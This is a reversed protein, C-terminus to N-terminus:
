PRIAVAVGTTASAQALRAAQDPTAALVVIAGQEGPALPEPVAIVAVDAAVLSAPHVLDGQASYVDLRDGTHLLAAIDADPLRIAAAVAGPAYGALLSPGILARDTLVEGARMPAALVQGVADAMPLSGTQPMLSRAVTVARLDDATLRAGADLDHAAVVALASPPPAPALVRLSALVAAATLAAVGIRRHRRLRRTYPAISESLTRRAPTPV